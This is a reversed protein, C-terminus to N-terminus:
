QFATYTQKKNLHVTRIMIAKNITMVRSNSTTPTESNNQQIHNANLERNNLDIWNNCENVKAIAEQERDRM